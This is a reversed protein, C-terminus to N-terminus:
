KNKIEQRHKDDEKSVLFAFQQESGEHERSDVM